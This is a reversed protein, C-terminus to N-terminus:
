ILATTAGQGEVHEKGCTERCGQLITCPLFDTASRDSLLNWPFGSAQAIDNDHKIGKPVMIGGPFVGHEGVETTCNFPTLRTMTPKVDLEIM